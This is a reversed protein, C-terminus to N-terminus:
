LIMWICMERLTRTIRRWQSELIWNDGDGERGYNEMDVIGAMRPSGLNTGLIQDLDDADTFHIDDGVM